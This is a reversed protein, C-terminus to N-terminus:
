SNLAPRFLAVLTRSLVLFIRSNKHRFFAAVSFSTNARICGTTLRASYKKNKRVQIDTTPQDNNPKTNNTILTNM